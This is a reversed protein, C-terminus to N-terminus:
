KRVRLSVPVPPRLAAQDPRLARVEGGTDPHDPPLFEDSLEPGSIILIKLIIKIFINESSVEPQGRM